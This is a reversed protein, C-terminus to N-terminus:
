DGETRLRLYNESVNISRLIMFIITLFGFMAALLAEYLWPPRYTLEIFSKGAPLSIAKFNGLSRKIEIPNGNRKARWYPSYWDRIFLIADKALLAIISLTNYTRSHSM